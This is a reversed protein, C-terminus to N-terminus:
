LAPLSTMDLASVFRALLAKHRDIMDRSLPDDGSLSAIMPAAWFYGFMLNFIAVIQLALDRADPDMEAARAIGRGYDALRNVWELGIEDRASPSSLLSRILLLSVHSHRTLVDVLRDTLTRFSAESAPRQITAEMEEVLPQLARQLVQRYLADKSEFHKYLGPQRIDVAAAIDRLSTAEYGKHAFLLEAADLLREATRQGKSAGAKGGNDGM